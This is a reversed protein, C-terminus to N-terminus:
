APGGGEQLPCTPPTPLLCLCVMTGEWSAIIVSVRGTRGVTCYLGGGVGASAGPVTVGAGVAGGGPGALHHLSPPATQATEPVPCPYKAPAM